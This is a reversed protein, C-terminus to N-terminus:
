CMLSNIHLLRLAKIDAKAQPKLPRSYTPTTTSISAPRSSSMAARMPAAGISIAIRTDTEALPRSRKPTCPSPACSSMTSASANAHQRARLPSTTSPRLDNPNSHIPEHPLMVM